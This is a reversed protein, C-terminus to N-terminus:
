VFTTLGPVRKWGGGLMVEEEGVMDSGPVAALIDFQDDMKVNTTNTRVLVYFDGSDNQTKTM